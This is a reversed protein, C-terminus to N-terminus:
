PETVAPHRGLALRDTEAAGRSPVPAVLTARRHDFLRRGVLESWFHRRNVLLTNLAGDALYQEGDALVRLAVPQEAGRGPHRPHVGLLEGAQSLLWFVHQGGDEVGLM